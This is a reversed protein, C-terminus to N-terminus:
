YKKLLSYIGYMVGVTLEAFFAGVSYGALMEAAVVNGKDLLYAYGGVLLLNLIAITTVVVLKIATLMLEGKYM